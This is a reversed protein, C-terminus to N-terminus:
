AKLDAIVSDVIASIDQGTRVRHGQMWGDFESRRILVKGGVKYAPLADQKIYQRITSAGLSAYQSLGKLDLYKDGDMESGIAGGM